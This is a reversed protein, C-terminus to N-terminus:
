AVKKGNEWKGVFHPEVGTLHLVKDKVYDLCTGVDNFVFASPYDILPHYIGIGDGGGHFKDPVITYILKKSATARGFEVLGGICPYEKLALFNAVILDARDLMDFSEIAINKYDPKVGSDWVGDRMLKGALPNLFRVPYDSMETIFRCRWDADENIHDNRIPGVLYIRITREM